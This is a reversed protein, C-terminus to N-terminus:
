ENDSFGQVKVLTNSNETRKCITKHSKCYLILPYKKPDNGNRLGPDISPKAINSAPIEKTKKLPQAITLPNRVYFQTSKEPAQKRPHVTVFFPFCFFYFGEGFMIETTNWIWFSAERSLQFSNEQIFLIGTMRLLICVLGVVVLRITESLDIVNRKYLGICSMRGKPCLRRLFRNVRSSFYLVVFIDLFVFSVFVLWRERVGVVKDVQEPSTERLLCIRGEIGDRPFTGLVIANLPFVTQAVLLFAVVVLWFLKRLLGLNPRGDRALGRDAYMIILSRFILSFIMCIIYVQVM